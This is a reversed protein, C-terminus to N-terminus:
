KRFDDDTYPNPIVKIERLHYATISDKENDVDIITFFQAVHEPHNPFLLRFCVGGGMVARYAVVRFDKQVIDRYPELEEDKVKRCLFSDIHAEILALRNAFDEDEYLISDNDIIIGKGNYLYDVLLSDDKPNENEVKKTGNGQCASLASIIVLAACIIKIGKNMGKM